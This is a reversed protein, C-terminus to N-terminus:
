QRQQAATLIVDKAILSGGCSTVQKSDQLERFAVIYPFRDKFAEAGGVIHSSNAEMAVQEKKGTSVAIAVAVIAMVMVAVAVYSKGDRM